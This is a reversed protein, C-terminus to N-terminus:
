HFGVKHACDTPCDLPKPKYSNVALFCIRELHSSSPQHKLLQFDQFIYWSARILLDKLGEWRNRVYLPIGSLELQSLRYVRSRLRIVERRLVRAIRDKASPGPNEAEILVLLGVSQGHATLQSAVEYALIGNHCFGGLFYPGRPSKERLAAVLHSALREVRYPASLRGVSEPDIGISVFPQNLGLRDVLPRLRPGEGVCFFPPDDGKPQVAIAYTLEDRSRDRLLLAALTEITPAGLISALPLRKHFVQEIKAFLRVAHLSNGALEFFNERIGIPAHHLVQEWIRVLEKEM